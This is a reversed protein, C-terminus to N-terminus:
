GRLEPPVYLGRHANGPDRTASSWVGMVLTLSWLCASWLLPEFWWAGRVDFLYIPAKRSVGLYNRYSVFSVQAAASTGLLRGRVGALPATLPSASVLLVQGKFEEVPTLYPAGEDILGEEGAGAGRAADELAWRYPPNEVRPTGSLVYARAPLPAYSLVREPLLAPAPARLARLAVGHALLAVGVSLVLARRRGRADWPARLRSLPDAPPRLRAHRWLWACLLASLAWPARASPTLHPAWTLSAQHAALAVCASLALWRASM